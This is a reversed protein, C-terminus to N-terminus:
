NLEFLIKHSQLPSRGVLFFTFIENDDKISMNSLVILGPVAKNNKKARMWFKIFYKTPIFEKLNIDYTGIIVEPIDGIFGIVNKKM